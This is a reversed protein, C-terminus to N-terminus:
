KSYTFTDIVTDTLANYATYIFNRDEIEVVVYNQVSDAVTTEPCSDSVGYLPAGVGAAVVYVTGSPRGSGSGARAITPVGSPGSAAITGQGGELGRIPLTREYVHNHGTFVVDVEFEDFIPQWAQRLGTDPRHTSLCSYFPRHHVAFVWPTVSRDVAALDSRLWEAQAGALVGNDSTSDNLMVFHANAYDFSYWEEGQAQEEEGEQIQPFAFQAIYNVALNEHNGNVMMLPVRGLFDSIEFDDVTAGFFVDWNDQLVGLMVADGSFVELDVGKELVHRQSIPWANENNNRSDGTAAFSWAETSGQEPGTAVDYVESWAGPAGVKYYYTTSAELGCVHVEHIRTTGLVIAGAGEVFLMQHGRLMSVDEGPETAATIAAEDTGYLIYTATTERDTEWNVNFTSSTEGAWGVHVHIPDADPGVTEDGLSAERVEPTSVEYDCGEPTYRFSRLPPPQAADRRNVVQADEVPAGADFRRLGTEECGAVAFLSLLFLSANRVTM